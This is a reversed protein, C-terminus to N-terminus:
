PLFSMPDVAFEGNRLEFHLHPGSSIGTNGSLAIRQGKEVYQGKTVLASKLHGYLTYFGGDHELIVVNGYGPQEGYFYVEGGSSAYVTTGEPVDIDIGDHHQRVGLVPHNRWGFTSVVEGPLPWIFQSTANHALASVNDWFASSAGPILLRAGAFITAAATIGNAKIIADVTVGYTTAIDTLTQGRKITHVLGNKAAYLVRGAAPADTGYLQSSARLDRVGVGMASAISQLTEGQKATHSLINASSTSTTAPTSSPATATPTSTAPKTTTPTTSSSTSGGPLIDKVVDDVPRATTAAPTTTTTAPATTPASAGTTGVIQGDSMVAIPSEERKTCGTKLLIPILIAAVVILGAILLRDKRIPKTGEGGYRTPSTV